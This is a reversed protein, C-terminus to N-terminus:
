ARPQARPVCLHIFECKRRADTGGRTNEIKIFTIVRVSDGMALVENDDWNGELQHQDERRFM